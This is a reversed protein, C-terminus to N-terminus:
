HLAQRRIASARRGHADAQRAWEPTEFFRTMAVGIARLDELSISQEVPGFRERMREDPYGRMIGTRLARFQPEFRSRIQLLDDRIVEQNPFLEDPGVFTEIGVALIGRFDGKSVDFPMDLMTLESTGARTVTGFTPGQDPHLPNIEIAGLLLGGLFPIAVGTDPKWSLQGAAFLVPSVFATVADLLALVEDASFDSRQYLRTLTHHSIATHLSTEVVGLETRALDYVTGACVLHEQEAGSIVRPAVTEVIVRKRTPHPIATSWCPFPGAARIRDKLSLATAVVNTVVGNQYIHFTPRVAAGLPGNEVDSAEKIEKLLHRALGRSLKEDQM